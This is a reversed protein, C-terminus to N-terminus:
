FVSQMPFAKDGNWAWMEGAELNQVAVEMAAPQARAAIEGIEQDLVAADLAPTKAGQIVSEPQCACLLLAATLALARYM